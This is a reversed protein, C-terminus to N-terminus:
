ETSQSPARTAPKWRDERHQRNPPISSSYHKTSLDKIVMDIATYTYGGPLPPLGKSSQNRRTEIRPELHLLHGPSRSSTAKKPIINLYARSQSNCKFTSSLVDKWFMVLVYTNILAPLHAVYIVGLSPALLADFAVNESFRSTYERLPNRPQSYIRKQAAGLPRRRPAVAM